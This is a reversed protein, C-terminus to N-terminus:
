KASGPIVFFPPDTMVATDLSENCLDHSRCCRFDVLYAGWRVQDVNACNKLCGMFTLWLVNIFVRGTTCAEGETATCVGRGKFCSDGPFQLHCMRCQIIDTTPSLLAPPASTLASTVHQSLVGRGVHTEFHAHEKDLFSGSLVRFSCLLILLGLLLFKDM